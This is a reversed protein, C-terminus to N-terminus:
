RRLNDAEQLLSSRTEAPEVRWQEVLKAILANDYKADNILVDALVSALVTGDREVIFLHPFLEFDPFRSLFAQNTNDEGWYVRLVEFGEYFLKAAAPDQNLHRDLFFCWVCWNGGVLVLVRRQSERASSLALEFDAAPNRASDYVRSYEPLHTPQSPHKKWETALTHGSFLACLIILLRAQIM